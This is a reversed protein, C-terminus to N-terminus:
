KKEKFDYEIITTEDHERLVVRGTISLFTLDAKGPASLAVKARALISEGGPQRLRVAVPDGHQAALWAAVAASGSGCANEWVMTAAEPVYLLPRILVTPSVMPGTEALTDVFILGYAEACVNAALRRILSEPRIDATIKETAPAIFHAIGPLRVLPVSVATEHLVAEFIEVTAPLPMSVTCEFGGDRVVQVSVPHDAGSVELSIDFKGGSAIGQAEAIMAAASMAANGCFEGGAMELRPCPATGRDQTFFGIQEAGPIIQMLHAAVPKRASVPVPSTVLVTINGMPDWVSYNVQM